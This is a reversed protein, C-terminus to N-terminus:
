ALLIIMVLDCKKVCVSFKFSGKPSFLYVIEAYGRVLRIRMCYWETLGSERDYYVETM